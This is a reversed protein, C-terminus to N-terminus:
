GACGRHLVFGALWDNLSAAPNLTRSGLKVASLKGDALVKYITLQGVGLVLSAENISYTIKESPNTPSPVPAMVCGPVAKEPPRYPESAIQELMDIAARLHQVAYVGLCPPAEDAGDSHM